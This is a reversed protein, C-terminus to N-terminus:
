KEKFKKFVWIGPVIFNFINGILMTTAAGMYGYKNILIYGSISVLVLYGIGIWVFTKPKSFYYNISTHIPISILFIAQSILLIVLPGFSLSYEFGYVRNILIKGLIIGVPVGIIALGLVFLQLKKLYNIVDLKNTFRSLKPAVVSAIALVIQPILSTLSIAVSYIGVDILSLLRTSLFIDVRSAVAMILTFVAVWKNFHFFQSLIKKEKTEKWFMPLFLFGIFFGALPAGIYGYLAGNVSLGSVILLVIASVLRLLNALINVFSWAWFKELAQLASVSFSFLLATGVGFLSLRLPVILEPKAFIFNTFSPVLFWGLFLVLFFSVFKLELGLKLFRSMKSKDSQAFQGVFRLIGTDIGVNAISALLAISTVSVSFIGYDRPGLFRAMLIYYIVGLIGNVITGFSSVTSDRFTKTSLIGKIKEKM